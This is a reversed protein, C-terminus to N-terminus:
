ASFFDFDQNKVIKEIKLAQIHKDTWQLKDCTWMLEQKNKGSRLAIKQTVLPFTNTVWFAFLYGFKSTLLM